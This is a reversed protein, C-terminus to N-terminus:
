SASASLIGYSQAGRRVFTTRVFAWYARRDGEHGWTHSIAQAGFLESVKQVLKQVKGYIRVLRGGTRSGKFHDALTQNNIPVACVLWFMTMLFVIFMGGRALHQM